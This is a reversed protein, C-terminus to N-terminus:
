PQQSDEDKTVRIMAIRNKSVSQVTFTYNEVKLTEGKQPLTDLENMMWGAVTEYDEGENLPFGLALAEAVSLRGDIMWTDDGLQAFHKTSPDYEDDIDGVIEEIIDEISVLGATGGYEDVVIALQMKTTQMESLLPLINKTEPVFVAARMSHWAPEHLRGEMVPELLDKLMVVGLVKDPTDEIVPMRSLGTQRMQTVVESVTQQKDACVMDVRPTMVELVVTDGLDFIETIMRKEEDLLSDQESVLIKIEEEALETTDLHKKIRLLRALLNTSAALLTVVPSLLREFFRIPGSVRMATNEANSLAIRKPLLEGLILTVYSVILTTIIISLVPAAVVLWSLGFSALWASLDSSFSAAAFAAALFGVLTIAVQTTALLRDSNQALELARAAKKSRDPNEGELYQQLIGRRASILALESMAFYGSILILLITIVVIIADNM